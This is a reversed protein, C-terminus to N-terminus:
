CFLVSLFLSKPVPVLGPIEVPFLGTPFSSPCTTPIFFLLDEDFLINQLVNKLILVNKDEENSVSMKERGKDFYVQTRYRM